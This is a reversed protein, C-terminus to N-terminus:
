SWMRRQCHPLILSWRTLGKKLNVHPHLLRDVLFIMLYCSFPTYIYIYIIHLTKVWVHVSTRVINLQWYFGLLLHMLCRSTGIYGLSNIGTTLIFLCGRCSGTEQCSLWNCTICSPSQLMLSGLSLELFVFPHVTAQRRVWPIKPHFM